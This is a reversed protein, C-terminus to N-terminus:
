GPPSCSVASVFDVSRRERRHLLQGAPPPLGARLREGRSGDHLGRDAARRHRRALAPRLAAEPGRPQPCAPYGFSVRMGRYQAKFREAMTMDPADSIGMARPDQPAALEAGGRGGRDGAGAARALARVRGEGEAGDLAERIGSAAPSSSCRSPTASATRSRRSSTPSASGTPGGSARSTSTAGGRPRRRRLPAHPQRRVAAGFFRYVAARRIAARRAARRGPRRKVIAQSRSSSRTASRRRAARANGRLGLHKATSCRGPEHLALAGAPRFDLVHRDLTPRRAHRSTSTSSRRASRRGADGPGLGGAVRGDRPSEGRGRDERRAGARATMIQNALDLGNMADNRLRRHGYTPAIKTRTFRKSLAAGGVLLPLAMGAARLDDATVVMQQASKVLLGSLGISTPGTSRAGGAILPEPPVKIGSTSSRSLRQEVLIIDVLNKGIDHVDGKVTALMVKGAHRQESKEMFQELHAVAAKMAEASQLVEAVILENANFLRGVEDMGKM